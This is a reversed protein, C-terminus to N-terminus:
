EKKTEVRYGHMKKEVKQLVPLEIILEHMNEGRRRGTDM